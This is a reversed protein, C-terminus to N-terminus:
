RVTIMATLDHPSAQLSVSSIMPYAQWVTEILQDDYVLGSMEDLIDFYDDFLMSSRPSLNSVLVLGTPAADVYMIRLDPRRAKLIPIFKWVDGTWAHETGGENEGSRYSRDAMRANLPLCDHLIILSRRHCGREVHIFDRLLYEARHMGDLFALDVGLPFFSRVRHRKFFDDSTMQFLALRERTGVVDSAIAFKPDICLADCDFVKLSDGSSTGIELYSSPRLVTSILEFFSLYDIGLHKRDQWKSIHNLAAGIGRKLRFM